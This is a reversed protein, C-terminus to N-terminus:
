CMGNQSLSTTGMKNRFLRFIDKKARFKNYHSSINDMLLIKDREKRIQVKRNYRAVINCFKNRFILFM